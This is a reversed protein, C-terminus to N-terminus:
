PLGDFFDAIDVTIGPPDVRLQGDSLTHATVEGAANRAHHMVTRAEPDVVLYHQVSPLKFYGILKASTDSHASSPSIVEVVVVPDAVIKAKTPLWAGCRLSVDPEYATHTEIPVTLGATFVQAQIGAKKVATRFAVFVAGKVLNHEVLEPSMAVVQGNILETRTVNGQAEAWAIYDGVTMTRRVVVNM